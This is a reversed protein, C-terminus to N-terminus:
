CARLLVGPRRHVKLYASSMPWTRSASPTRNRFDMSRSPRVGRQVIKTSADGAERRQTAHGRAAEGEVKKMREQSRHFSLARRLEEAESGTFDAMVMAM